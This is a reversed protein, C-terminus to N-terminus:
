HLIKKQNSPFVGEVLFVYYNHVDEEYFNITHVIEMCSKMLEHKEPEEEL